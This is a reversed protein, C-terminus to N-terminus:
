RSSAWNAALWDSFATPVFGAYSNLNPNLFDYRSESTAILSHVKLLEKRNGSSEAFALADELHDTNYYMREFHRGMMGEAICVIDHIRKREGQMRLESPWNQMGLAKAVFRGVDSASTMCIFVERGAANYHPIKAKFNRIDILYDGENSIGTSGGIAASAMGGVAFREYLIGCVFVTSEMRERYLRLRDLAQLQGRDFVDNILPRLSPQGEFEAPAFRRVGAYYAADILNLQPSGSVTSVVIDIGALAYRLGNRESYNVVVVQYGKASLHPKPARSLMIFQHPTEVDIYYAIYQALGGTGAIAVRFM